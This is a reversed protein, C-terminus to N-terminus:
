SKPGLPPRALLPRKESAYEFKPGIPIIMNGKMRTRINFDISPETLPISSLNNNITVTAVAIFKSLRVNEVAKNVPPRNNIIIKKYEIGRLISVILL